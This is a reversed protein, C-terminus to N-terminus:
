NYGMQHLEKYFRKLSRTFKNFEESEKRIMKHLETGETVYENLELLEKNSQRGAECMGQIHRIFDQTQDM